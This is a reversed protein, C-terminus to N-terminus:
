LRQEEKEGVEQAAEAGVVEVQLDELARYVDDIQGPELELEDLALAVDEASVTGAAQAAEILSRAEEIELVEPAQVRADQEVGTTVGGGRHDAVASGSM